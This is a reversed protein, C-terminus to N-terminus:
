GIVEAKAVVQAVLMMKIHKGKVNGGRKKLLAEGKDISGELHRCSNGKEFCSKGLLSGYHEMRLTGSATRGYIGNNKKAKLLSIERERTENTDGEVDRYQSKEDKDKWDIRWKAEISCRHKRTLSCGYKKKRGNAVRQDPVTWTTM